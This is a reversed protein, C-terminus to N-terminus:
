RDTGSDTAPQVAFPDLLQDPGPATARGEPVSPPVWGPLPDALLRGVFHEADALGSKKLKEVVYEVGQRFAENRQAETSTRLANERKLRDGTMAHAAIEVTLEGRVKALEDDLKEIRDRAALTERNDKRNLFTLMVFAPALLVIIGVLAWIM